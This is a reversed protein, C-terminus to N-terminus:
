MLLDYDDLKDNYKLVKRKVKSTDVWTVFDEMSRTVHYAPDTVTEPGVRVHGQVAPDLSPFAACLTTPSSTYSCARHALHPSSDPARAPGVATMPAQMPVDPDPSGMAAPPVVVAWTMAHRMAAPCITIARAPVQMATRTGSASRWAHAAWPRRTAGQEQGQQRLEPQQQEQEQQRPQQEQEQQRPQQQQRQRGRWKTRRVQEIFTCAERLTEAMKIRVMVVALRRRCFAATPLQDCQVLSKKTPLVGM